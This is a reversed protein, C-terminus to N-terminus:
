IEIFFSILFTRFSFLDTPGIM